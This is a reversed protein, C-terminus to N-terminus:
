TSILLLEQRFVWKKSTSDHEKSLHQSTIITPKDMMYHTKDKKLIKSKPLFIDNEVPEPNNLVGINTLLGIQIKEL